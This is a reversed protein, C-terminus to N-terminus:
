TFAIPLPFLSHIPSHPDQIHGLVVRILNVPLYRHEVTLFIVLTVCFYISALFLYLLEM